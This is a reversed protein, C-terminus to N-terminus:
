ARREVNRDGGNLAIGACFVACFNRMCLKFRSKRRRNSVFHKRRQSSRLSSAIWNAKWAKSQKAESAIVILLKNV